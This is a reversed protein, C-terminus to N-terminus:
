GQKYMKFTKVTSQQRTVADLHTHPIMTVAAFNKRASKIRSSTWGARVYLHLHCPVLSYKLRAAPDVLQLLSADGWDTLPHLTVVGLWSSVDRSFLFSLLYLTGHPAAICCVAAVGGNNRPSSSYFPHAAFRCQSSPANTHGDSVVASTLICLVTRLGLM